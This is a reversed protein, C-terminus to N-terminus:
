VFASATALKVCATSLKLSAKRAKSNYPVAGCVTISFLGIGPAAFVTNTTIGLVCEMMGANGM